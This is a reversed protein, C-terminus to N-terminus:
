RIDIAAHSGFDVVEGLEIPVPNEFIPGNRVFTHYEGNEGCIDAGTSRIKEVLGASLTKGLFGNDLYEKNVCKIIAEFGADFLQAVVRERGQGWLPMVCELGAAACREKNWELHGEIDIDGFVCCQAGMERAKELSSEFASNYDDGKGVSTIIPLGLAKSVKDMLGYDVGHFWSRGAEENVTIILCVPEHGAQKMKYFALASDKGCSYSIVFKM